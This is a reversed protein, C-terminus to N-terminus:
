VHTVRHDKRAGAGKSSNCPKCLTQLNSPDDTGGFSQPKIHDISLRRRTGCHQCTFNDREWIEWRLDSSVPHQPIPEPLAEGNAGNRRVAWGAERVLVKVVEAFSVRGGREREMAVRLADLACYTEDDIRIIQKSPQM